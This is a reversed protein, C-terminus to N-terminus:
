ALEAKRAAVPVATLAFCAKYPSNGDQWVPLRADGFAILCQRILGFALHALPRHSEYHVIIADGDHRTTIRPPRADPYLVSVEAHIHSTIHGLMAEASGYNDIVAPFQTALRAYLYSGYDACFDAYPENAATAAIEMIQLALASAYNGVSTFGGQNPLNAAELISDAFATGHRAELFGVLETFIVGKM